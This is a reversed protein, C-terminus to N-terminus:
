NMEAPPYYMYEEVFHNIGNYDVSLQEKRPLFDNEHQPPLPRVLEYCFQSNRRTQRIFAISDAPLPQSPFLMRRDFHHLEIEGTYPEERLDHVDWVFAISGEDEESADPEFYRATGFTLTLAEYEAITSEAIVGEQVLREMFGRCMEQLAKRAAQQGVGSVGMMQVAEFINSFHGQSAAERLRNTYYLEPNTIIIPYPPLENM